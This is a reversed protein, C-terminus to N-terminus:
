AQNAKPTKNVLTSLTQNLHASLLSSRPSSSKSKNMNTLLGCKCSISILQSTITKNAELCSDCINHGCPLIMFDTLERHCTFCKIKELTNM